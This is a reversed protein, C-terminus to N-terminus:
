IRFIVPTYLRLQGSYIQTPEQIEATEAFRATLVSISQFREGPVYHVHKDSQSATELLRPIQLWPM